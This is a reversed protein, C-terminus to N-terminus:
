MREPASVGLLDLSLALVIRTSDVLALRAKEVSEEEGLVHCNGYFSHFLGALEQAYHTLRFPARDRAAGAVLDSFDAMKRMLALESEHALPSLDIDDLGLEAVIEEIGASEVNMGRAEGAKRLISCIRAHAYQVYYVPNSSDQKKAVEIDFDIAQDASKSLMLYRTADVGVEDILEQFTVMEGTRKSMRVPEGDRLLNVLQGLVVELADPYGWAAMMAKCRQIYGHHDAGWIDILHDYGRQMKDYHYAVDSMFYTLDGNAKVLVRDKDDGYDTSRFFTAGEAEFLLGKDNMVDFARQQKTEGNEDVVFLSRESFWTDFNNGFTSLTDKVSDLMMAYGRERFAVLREDENADLWKDGDADIIAQAIDKIYAGGYCAEPMEVDQGLLQQYRVVISNGFVNMQNGQDNIYFEEDVSYGAHRMVRAIADGLAAWRGHGVHMPGTPNASVYELNVKCPESLESKGFDSGQQRAESVVAQFSANTLTLNIFGPGAIEFSEVLNNEPLHDVIAQAIARPNMHAAKALRMAITCAWDGHGEERPRELSPQPIENLPLEGAEVAAKLAQYLVSELSERITM